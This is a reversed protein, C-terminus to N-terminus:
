LVKFKKMGILELRAGESMGWGWFFDPLREVGPYNYVLLIVILSGGTM